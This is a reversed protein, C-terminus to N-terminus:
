SPIGTCPCLVTVNPCLERITKAQWSDSEIYMRCGLRNVQEAKWQAVDQMRQAYSHPYMILQGYYIQHRELWAECAKRFLERRGTIIYPVCYRRPTRVPLVHSLWQVYRPGDDDLDAPCDENLIGDWDIGLQFDRLMQGNNWLNWEFWHPLDLVVACGALAARGPNAGYVAYAPLDKLDPHSRLEQISTGSCSSDEVLAITGHELVPRMEGHVTDPRLRMGSPVPQLGHEASAIYLPLGLRLAVDTAARLGSRPSGAIGSLNSHSAAIMQSLTLTDQTWTEWTILSNECTRYRQRAKHLPFAPRGLSANVDNHIQWTWVFHDEATDFVPPRREAIANWKEVCSCNGHHAKVRFQWYRYHSEAESPSVWYRVPYYHLEDWLRSLARQSSNPLSVSRRAPAPLTAIPLRCGNQFSNIAQRAAMRKAERIDM